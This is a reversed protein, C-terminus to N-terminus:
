SMPCSTPLEAALSGTLVVEEVMPPLANVM